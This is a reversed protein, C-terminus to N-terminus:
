FPWDVIIDAFIATQYLQMTDITVESTTPELM